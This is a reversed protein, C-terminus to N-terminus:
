RSLHENFTKEAVEMQGFITVLTRREEASLPQKVQTKYELAHQLRAGADQLVTRIQLEIPVESLHDALDVRQGLKGIAHTGRYGPIESDDGKTEPEGDVLTSGTLAAVVEQQESDTAVVIRIGIMDQIQPHWHEFEEGEYYFHPKPNRQHQPLPACTRCLKGSGCERIIKDQLSTLHKLRTSITASEFVTTEEALLTRIQDEATRLVHKLGHEVKRYWQATEARRKDKEGALTSTDRDGDDDVTPTSAEPEARRTGAPRAGSTPPRSRSYRGDRLELRGDKQLSAVAARIRHPTHLVNLEGSKAIENLRLPTGSLLGLIDEELASREDPTLTRGQTGIGTRWGGAQDRSPDGPLKYELPRGRTVVSGRQRFEKLLRYARETAVGARESVVDILAGENMGELASIIKESDSGAAGNPDGIRALATATDNLLLQFDTETDSPSSARIDRLQAMWLMAMSPGTPLEREGRLTEVFRLHQEVTGPDASLETALDELPRDNREGTDADFLGHYAARPLGRGHAWLLSHTQQRHVTLRERLTANM